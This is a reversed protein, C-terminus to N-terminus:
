KQIKVRGTVRGIESFIADLDNGTQAFVSQNIDSACYDMVDKNIGSNAGAGFRVTWITTNQMIKNADVGAGLVAGLLNKTQDCEQAAAAHPEISALGVQSGTYDAPFVYRSTGAPFNPVVNFQGDTMFIFVKLRDEGAGSSVNAFYREKSRRLGCGACTGGSPTVIPGLATLIDAETVLLDTTVIPGQSGSDDGRYNALSVRYKEIGDAGIGQNKFVIQLFNNIAIWVAQAKSTGSGSFSAMSGSSDIIFYYDAPVFAESALGVVVGGGVDISSNANIANSFITPVDFGSTSVSVTGNQTDVTHTVDTAYDFGVGLTGNPLNAMFYDKAKAEDGGAVASAVAASDAAGAIAASLMYARGLDLPLSIVLILVNIMLAFVIMIAGREDKLFNRVTLQSMDNM